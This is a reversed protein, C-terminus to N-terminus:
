LLSPIAFIISFVRQVESIQLCCRRTQGTKWMRLHGLSDRTHGEHCLVTLHTSHRTLAPNKSWNIIDSPVKLPEKTWTVIIVNGTIVGVKGKKKPSLKNILAPWNLTVHDSTIQTFSNHVYSKKYSSFTLCITHFAM